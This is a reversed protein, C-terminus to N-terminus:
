WASIRANSALVPHAAITFVENLTRPSGITHV